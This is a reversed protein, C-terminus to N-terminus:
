RLTVRKKMRHGLDSYGRHMPPRKQNQVQEEEFSKAIPSNPESSQKDVLIPKPKQYVTLSPTFSKKKVNFINIYFKLLLFLCSKVIIVMKVKLSGSSAGNASSNVTSNSIVIAASGSPPNPPLQPLNNSHSPEPCMPLSLLRKRDQM